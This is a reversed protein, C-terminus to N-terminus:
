SHQTFCVYVILAHIDHKDPWLSPFLSRSFSLFNFVDIVTCSLEYGTTIATCKLCFSFLFPPPFFFREQAKSCCRFTHCLYLSPLHHQSSVQPWTFFILFITHPFFFFFFFFSFVLASNLKLCGPLFYSCFFGLHHWPSSITRNRRDTLIHWTHLILTCM